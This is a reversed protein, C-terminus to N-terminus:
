ERGGSSSGSPTSSAASGATALEREAKEKAQQETYEVWARARKDDTRRRLWLILWVLGAIVVLALLWWPVAIVVTDRSVVNLPGPNMADPSVTPLLKVYPNLYGLQAVGHVDVSVTRTSGPLMEAVQSKVVEGAGIGFWTNVGASVDAGLAVNGDNKITYTITTTGDLPNFQPAYSSAISTVTLNAQLDGPVRVYMRTAVRRDVLIQDSASTASAVIGAAHDGPSADAPVDVAFQVLQTAGPDLTLTARTSGDLFHVWGGADTPEADTELLGYGGDDTNYADTAFVTISQPTSGTNRVEVMDDIHQGPAATYSLRARSSDAGSETAPGISISDTDDAHAVAASGLVLSAAATAAVLAGGVLRRLARSRPTM